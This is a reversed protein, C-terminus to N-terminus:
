SLTEEEMKIKIEEKKEASQKKPEAGEGRMHSLGEERCLHATDRAEGVCEQTIQRRQKV